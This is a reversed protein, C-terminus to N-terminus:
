KYYVVTIFTGERIENLNHNELHNIESLENIYEQKSEYHSDMYEEAISWLSDGYEIEVTKYCKVQDPYQTDHASAFFSGFSFSLSGIAIVALIIILHASRKATNRKKINHNRNGNVKNGTSKM